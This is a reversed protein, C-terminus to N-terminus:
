TTILYKRAADHVKQMFEAPKEQNAAKAAAINQQLLDLLPQDIENDGAMELLTERKDPAQLLKRLREAPEAAKATVEDLAKIAPGLFELLSELEALREENPVKAFRQESIQGKLYTFFEETLLPRCRAVEFTMEDGETDLMYEILEAHTKPQVRAERKQTLERKAEDRAKAMTEKLEANEAVQKQLMRRSIHNGTPAGLIGEPDWGVAVVQLCYRRGYRLRGARSFPLAQVREIPSLNCSCCPTRMARNTVAM